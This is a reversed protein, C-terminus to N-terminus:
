WEPRLRRDLAHMPAFIGDLPVSEIRYGVFITRERTSVRTGRSTIGGFGIMREVMAYYAGVYLTALLVLFGLAYSCERWPFHRM